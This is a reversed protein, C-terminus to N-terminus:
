TEGRARMNRLARLLDLTAAVVPRAILTGRYYPVLEGGFGKKFDSIRRLKGSARGPFAEGCEYRALGQAAFTKIAHWQLLDNAGSSLAEGDSAVVWYLACNKYIAFIHISIVDGQPSLACFGAALGQDLFQDFITDFYNRPKAPLGTRSATQHHLELFIDRDDAGVSRITIGSREARKVAKRVRHELGRWLDEESRHELELVWSQTSAETCGLLALPNVGSDLDRTRAPALPAMSLDVRSAGHRQAMDLLTDRLDREAQSRQRPSLEPDYAPGGTSELHRLLGRAPWNGAVDRLPVLAILRNENPEVLAFSADETKSWTGYAEIAEWRHWMWADPFRDAAANWRERDIEQRPVIESQSGM